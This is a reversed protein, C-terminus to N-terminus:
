PEPDADAAWQHDHQARMAEGMEIFQEVDPLELTGLRAPSHTPLWDPLEDDPHLIVSEGASMWTNIAFSRYYQTSEARSNSCRKNALESEVQHHRAHDIDALKPVV